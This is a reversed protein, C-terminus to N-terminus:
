SEAVRQAYCGARYNKQRDDLYAIEIELRKIAFQIAQAEFHAAEYGPLERMYEAVAAARQGDNKLDPRVAIVSKIEREAYEYPGMMLTATQRLGEAEHRLCQIIRPIAAVDALPEVTFERQSAMQGAQGMIVKARHELKSGEALKELFEEIIPDNTPNSPKTLQFFGAPASTKPPQENEIETMPTAQM